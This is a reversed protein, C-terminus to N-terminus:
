RKWVWRREVQLEGYVVLGGLSATIFQLYGMVSLFIAPVFDLSYLISACGFLFAAKILAALTLVRLYNKKMGVKFLHVLLSNGVWILPVFYILFKTLSGFLVGAVVAGLSPMLIVPLIRYGRLSFAGRILMANVAVGVLLQPHLLIAPLLFSVASLVVMEVTPSIFSYDFKTQNWTKPLLTPFM